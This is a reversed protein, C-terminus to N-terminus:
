RQPPAPLPLWHTPYHRDGDEDYWGGAADREVFVMGRVHANTNVLLEGGPATDIPLWETEHEM